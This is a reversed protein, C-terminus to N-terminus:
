KDPLRGSLPRHDHFFRRTRQVQQPLRSVLRLPLVWLAGRPRAPGVLGSWRERHMPQPVLKVNSRLVARGRERNVSSTM